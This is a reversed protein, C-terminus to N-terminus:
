PVLNPLVANPTLLVAHSVGKNFEATALVRGLDNIGRAESIVWGKGSSNLMGNVDRLKGDVDVWGHQIELTFTGNSLRKPFTIFEGVVQNLNNIGFGFTDDSGVVEGLDKIKGGSYVYAHEISDDAKVAASGVVVGFQNMEGPAVSGGAVLSPVEELSKSGPRSIFTHDRVNDFTGILVRGQNNISLASPDIGFNGLDSFTGNPQRIFIHDASNIPTNAPSYDGATQGVDNLSWGITETAGPVNFGTVVGNKYVFGINAKGNFMTGAVQSSNNLGSAFSSSANPTVDIVKGKHFLVAKNQNGEAIGIADGRDNIRIAQAQSTGPLLGLDTLSYTPTFAFAFSPITLSLAIYCFNNSFKVSKNWIGEKARRIYIKM